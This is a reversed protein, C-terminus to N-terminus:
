AWPGMESLFRRAYGVYDPIVTAVRQLADRVTFVDNANGQWGNLETGRADYRRVAIIYDGNEVDGLFSLEFSRACCDGNKKLVLSSEAGAGPSRM